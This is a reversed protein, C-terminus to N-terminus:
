EASIRPRTIALTFLPDERRSVRFKIRREPALANPETMREAGRHRLARMPLAESSLSSAAALARKIAAVKAVDSDELRRRGLSIGRHGDLGGLRFATM